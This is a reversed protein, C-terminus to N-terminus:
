PHTGGQGVTEPALMQYSVFALRKSDPAWSPVNMTGGGGILRFLVHVRRDELSMVRLAIPKNAPHGTTGPEYSIFVISKGDPSPHATWNVWNDSTMQEPSSGDPHMRWIQMSGGRDSNFYIYRGDPSYDPDDSVGTGTTLAHEEGGEAPIAFINLSGHDPRSFLITKGDPSWSHFWSNPHENLVRPDGGTVPVLYIRFESKGATTCTVALLKGDPSLGHSGTCRTAEGTDIQRPTGGDAPVTMIKGDQDFILTKGDRSWNPAEFHGQASWVVVDRRFDKDDGITNLTSYLALNPPEPAVQELMVHSFVAKETKNPDHSCLGIGAYFPEALHLQVSAGVQHLAGGPESAMYMTFTDGRKELRLRRPATTTSLELDETMAGAERRYQLATLGVGHLAADAYSSGADLSQRFILIAKRHPNHEAGTEPFDIDATLAGDGSIKKWVFHFGDTTGWLNAGASTLTYTDAAAAFTATGPPTVAGVDAQGEFLGLSQPRASSPLLFALLLLTLLQTSRLNM